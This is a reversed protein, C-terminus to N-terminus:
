LLYMVSSRVQTIAALSLSVVTLFVNPTATLAEAENMTLLEFIRPPLAGLQM